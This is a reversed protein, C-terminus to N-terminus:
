PGLLSAPIVAIGDPRRYAYPGTTIIATDALLDGVKTHLWHLHTVDNDDVTRALKVELAVIRGGPGTIIFDIEHDANRTRLHAIDAEVTQAYTRLSLAVLSEFLQGIMARGHPRRQPTTELLTAADLNLLRAALAPDALHHKPAQALRAFPNDVPLWGPIPDLLWLQTLVDRYAITTTKAPKDSEGPAAADLIANYATTTATAAAYAQLWARLTAPKRVQYGQDHFDREVIRALYGDLQARRARPPLHRIGPFGSRLIEEVYAPLDMSAEGEIQPRTGALLATLSVTPTDLGRETLSMPRMRLQVIRGAGSHVPTVVPAASGTLIFRGPQPNQDVSRRIDDWIAPYRQWEDILVTGTARNIRAPDAALLRQQEADDLEFSTDARRQATATKGVGKPGEIAVAALAPLLEDLETDLLRRQYGAM